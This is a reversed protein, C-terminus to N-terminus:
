FPIDDDLDRANNTETVESSKGGVMALEGKYKQLVIETTYRMVGDKEWKRTKLQGELYVKAGKRLYQEAIKALNDNFIVINHFESVEKFEGSNKDKWKESTALTLSVVPSGDTMRRTEPDKTLNGVLIVKNISSM